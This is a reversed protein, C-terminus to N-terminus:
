GRFVSARVDTRTHKNLLLLLFYYSTVLHMVFTPTNMNHESAPSQLAYQECLCTLRQTHGGFAEM